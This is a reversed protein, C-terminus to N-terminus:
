QVGHGLGLLFPLKLSHDTVIGAINMIVCILYPPISSSLFGPSQTQTGSVGGM